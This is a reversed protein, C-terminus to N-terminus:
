LPKDLTQGWGFHIIPQQQQGFALGMWLPHLTTNIIPTETAHSLAMDM